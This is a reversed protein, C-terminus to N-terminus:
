TRSGFRAARSRSRARARRDVGAHPVAISQMGEQVTGINEFISTVEWSVWGAAAVTQWALPLATAVAGADIAGQAWLTLGIAGHRRAVAREVGDALLFRTIM